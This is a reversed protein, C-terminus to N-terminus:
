ALVPAGWRVVGELVHAGRGFLLGLMLLLSPVIVLLMPGPVLAPVLNWVDAVLRWWLVAGESGILLARDVGLSRDMVVAGGGRDGRHARQGSGLGGGEITEETGRVWGM